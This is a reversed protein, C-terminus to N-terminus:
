SARVGNSTAVKALSAADIGDVVCAMVDALALPPVDVHSIMPHHLRRDILVAQLLQHGRSVLFRVKQRPLVLLQLESQPPQLRLFQHNSTFNEKM